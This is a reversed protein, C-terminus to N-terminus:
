KQIKVKIILMKDMNPNPFPLTFSASRWPATIM